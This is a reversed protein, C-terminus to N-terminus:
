VGYNHRAPHSCLSPCWHHGLHDACECRSRAGRNALVCISAVTEFCQTIHANDFAVSTTGVSEVMRGLMKTPFLVHFDIFIYTVIILTDYAVVIM